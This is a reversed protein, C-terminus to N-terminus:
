DSFSKKGDSTNQIKRSLSIITRLFRDVLLILILNTRKNQKQRENKKLKIEPYKQRICRVFRMPFIIRKTLLWLMTVCKLEVLKVLQNTCWRNILYYLSILLLLLLVLQMILVHPYNEVLNLLMKSIKFTARSLLFCKSSLCFCITSSILSCSYWKFSMRCSWTSSICLWVFNESTQGDLNKRFFKEDFSKELKRKKEKSEKKQKQLDLCKENILTLSKLKM